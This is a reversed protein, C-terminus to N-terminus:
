NQFTLTGGSVEYRAIRSLFTAGLLGVALKDDPLVLARVDAVEIDGVRISDLTTEAALATGNATLVPRDFEGPRPRVGLDAADSQRLVVVSAGTDVMLRVPRLNVEADVYFHGDSGAAIEVQRRDLSTRPPADARLATPGDQKYREFLSPAAAAVLVIFISVIVLPRMRVTGGHSGRSALLANANAAIRYLAAFEDQFRL